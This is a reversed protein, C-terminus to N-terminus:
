VEHDGQRDPRRSDGGQHAVARERDERLHGPGRLLATLHLLQCEGTELSTSPEVFLQTCRAVRGRSMCQVGAVWVCLTLPLTIRRIHCVKTVCSFETQLFKALKMNKRAESILHKLTVLDVSSPHYKIQSVRRCCSLQSGM